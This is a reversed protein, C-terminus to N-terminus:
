VVITVPCYRLLFLPTETTRCELAPLLNGASQALSTLKAAEVDELATPLLRGSLTKRCPLKFAPRLLAFLEEVKANVVWQLAFNASVTIEVLLKDVKQQEAASLPMDRLPVKHLKSAPQEAADQTASKRKARPAQKAKLEALREAAADRDARSM